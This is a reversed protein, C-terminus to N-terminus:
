CIRTVKEPQYVKLSGSTLAGYSVEWPHATTTCTNVVITSTM